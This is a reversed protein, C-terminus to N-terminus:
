GHLKDDEFSGKYCEGNPFNMEGKLRQDGRWVGKFISGDSWTMAGYGERRGAQFNGKYEAEEFEAGNGALLQSYKVSGFGNARGDKFMGRFM